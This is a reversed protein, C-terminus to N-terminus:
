DVPLEKSLFPKEDLIAVFDEFDIRPYYFQRHSSCRLVLTSDFLLKSLDDELLRRAEWLLASNQNLWEQSFGPARQACFRPLMRAVKQKVFGRLGYRRYHGHWKWDFEADERVVRSSRQSFDIQWNISSLWNIRSRNTSRATTSEAFEQAM